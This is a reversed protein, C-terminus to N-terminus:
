RVLIVKKWCNLNGSKITIIYVGSGVKKGDLLRGNWRYTNWGASFNGETIQMIHYGSIDYLDIKARRNSSLKFKIGLPTSLDAKFVNRDLLCDNSSRVLVQATATKQFGCRDITMVEFIIPEQLARTILKTQRFLPQLTLWQNAPNGASRIFADAFTTDVNGNVFRVRVDWRIVGPPLKVRVEVSDGVDVFAPNVQIEPEGPNFFSCSNFAYVTTSDSNNVTNTDTPTQVQAFSILKVPNAPLNPVVYGNFTITITEAPPIDGFYWYITDGSVRTPPISFDGLTVSDPQTVSIWVSRATDPGTNPASITYGYVDKEIVAPVNEGNYQVTTDTHVNFNIDIDCKEIKKHVTVTDLATGANGCADTTILEFIINERNAGTLLRTNTFKPQVNLWQDAVNGTSQIFGDGYTSDNSGDAYHVILDWSTAKKPLRVKVFVSEKELISKPVAQIQPSEPVFYSCPDYAYVVTSDENNAFNSDCKVEVWARSFLRHPTLVLDASARADFLIMQESGPSLSDLQWFVTDNGVTKPAPQINSFTVSDPITANVQFHTLTGNGINKVKLEYSYQKGKPIAQVMQGGVDILTDANVSYSLAADFPNFINLRILMVKTFHVSQGTTFVSDLSGIWFDPYQRAIIAYHNLIMTNIGNVFYFIGANRVQSSVATETTTDKVVKYPGLNNDCATILRGDPYKIQLFFSENIQDKDNLDWAIIKYYGARKVDLNAVKRSIRTSDYAVVYIKSPDRLFTTTDGTVEFTDVIGAISKSSENRIPIDSVNKSSPWNEAHSKTRLPASFGNTQFLIGVAFLLIFIRRNESLINM